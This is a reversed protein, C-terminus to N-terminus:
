GPWPAPQSAVRNGHQWAALVSTEASRGVGETLPDRDLVAFSALDGRGFGSRLYMGVATDADLSEDRNLTHRRAAAIATWPNPDEVPCDSGGLLVVGAEHLSRFPYTFQTRQPGLRDPVWDGESRLFSPQVSAIVGLRAMQEVLGRSLVSAHEVRLRNPEVGEGVLREFLALVATNARDGIAHIAVSGGFQLAKDVLPRSRTPDLRLIGNTRPRDSFSAWMAATHGGLSGDAFGKWGGFRINPPADEIRRVASELEGVAETIVFVRITLPVEAAVALLHDLEGGGGCWLSGSATVMADISGIGLGPLGALVATLRRLDPEPGEAALGESILGIASERLIGTPRGDADRDITGGPPDPTGQGIGVRQLAASNAVAIHGCHRQLVLPRSPEIRDLAHRDPLGGELRGDDLRNGFIPGHPQTQRHLDVMESLHTLTSAGGVSLGALTQLYGLPHFHSDTLMPFVVGGPFSVEAVDHGRLHDAPGIAEIYGDALRIGTAGDVLDPTRISDVMLLTKFRSTM